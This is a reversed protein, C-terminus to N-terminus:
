RSSHKKIKNLEKLIQKLNGFVGDKITQEAKPPMMYSNGMATNHKTHLILKGTSDYLKIEIYTDESQGLFAFSYYYDGFKYKIQTCLYGDLSNEKCIKSIETTDIEDFLEFKSLNYKKIM